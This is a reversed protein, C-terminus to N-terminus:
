NPFEETLFTSRCLETFHLHIVLHQMEFKKRDSSSSIFRSFKNKKDYKKCLKISAEISNTLTKARGTNILRHEIQQLDEATDCCRSYLDKSLSRNFELNNIGNKTYDYGNYILVAAKGLKSISISEM